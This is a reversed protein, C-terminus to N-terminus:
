NLVSVATQLKFVELLANGFMGDTISIDCGEKLRNMDSKLASELKLPRTMPKSAAPFVDTSYLSFSPSITCVIGVMPKLTTPSHARM